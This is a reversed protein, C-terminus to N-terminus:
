CCLKSERCRAKGITATVCFIDVTKKLIQSIETFKLKPLKPCKCLPPSSPKLFQEYDHVTDDPSFVPESRQTMQESMTQRYDPVTLTLLKKSFDQRKKRSDRFRQIV